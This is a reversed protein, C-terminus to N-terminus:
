IVRGSTQPPTPSSLPRHLPEPRLPAAPPASAANDHLTVSLAGQARSQQSSAKRSHQMEEMLRREAENETTSLVGREVGGTFRVAVFAAMALCAIPLLFHEAIIGLQGPAGPAESKMAEVTDTMGAYEGFVGDMPFAPMISSMPLCLMVVVISWSTATVAKEVGPVSAGGAVVVGQFMLVLLAMAAISGLWASLRWTDRLTVETTSPVRQVVEVMTTRQVLEKGTRSVVGGDVVRPPPATEEQVTQETWRADTFHVVAWVGINAALALVLVLSCAQVSFRLHALANSVHPKPDFM